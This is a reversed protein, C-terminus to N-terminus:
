ATVRETTDGDQRVRHLPVQEAPATLSGRERMVRAPDDLEDLREALRRRDRPAIGALATV